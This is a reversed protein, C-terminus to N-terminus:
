KIKNKTVVGLLATGAITIVSTGVKNWKENRKKRCNECIKKDAVIEKGCKKCHNTKM